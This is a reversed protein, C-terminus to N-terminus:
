KEEDIGYFLLSKAQNETVIRSQMEM